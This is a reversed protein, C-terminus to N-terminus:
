SSNTNTIYDYDTILLITRCVPDNQARGVASASKFGRSLSHRCNAAEVSAAREKLWECERTSTGVLDRAGSVIENGDASMALLLLRDLRTTAVVLM